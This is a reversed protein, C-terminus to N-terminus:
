TLYIEELMEIVFRRQHSEPVSNLMKLLKTSSEEIDLHRLAKGMYRAMAGANAFAAGIISDASEKYQLTALATAAAKCVGIEPDQLLEVFHKLIDKKIQHSEVTLLTTISQITEIRVNNDEENQLCTFLVPIASNQGLLGLTRACALRLERDGINLHTVLSGIADALKEPARRAIQALSDAAACRLQPDDDNLAEILARIVKEQDSDGLIRAILYRVDANIKKPVFLREGLELNDQVIEMYKQTEEDPKQHAIEEPEENKAVAANDMAIAELTSMAISDTAAAPSQKTETENDSSPVPPGEVVIERKKLAALLVELAEPTQHLAMLAKLAALRVVQAKDKITWSLLGVAEQNGLVGLATAVQSRLIIDNEQNSLIQLLKQLITQEGLRALLSSAAAIVKNDSDALCQKVQELTKEPFPAVEPLALLAAARVASSSDKLLPTLKELMAKDKSISLGKTVDIVARRMEPAPDKLFRLMIDLYQSAGQKGLARIAAVRVDVIQDTMARALAKCTEKGQSFGLATAARRRERPTGETLRQNLSKEGEGGIQALAKLVESEIDQNEEDELIGLLVPVAEAIRMGGLIEVAKLQMDWWDNWSDTDDWVMDVPCSKAIDLLPSIIDQGGIRGLAEVVAMKIEGNPDSNLSELLPPIAQPNGIHGLAEIADISVDIDEDRLRQVLAPIAQADGLAGLAKSAYCRDVEDGTSTLHCLSEIVQKKNSM